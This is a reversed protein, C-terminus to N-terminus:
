EESTADTGEVKVRIVGHRHYWFLGAICAFQIASLTLLPADVPKLWDILLRWWLYGVM